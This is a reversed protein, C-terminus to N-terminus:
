QAGLDDLERTVEERDIANVPALELYKRLAEIARPRQGAQTLCSGLNRYADALWPPRPTEASGLTVSRELSPLAEGPQGLDMVLVGLRYHWEGIADNHAVAKRYAEVAGPLDRLRDLADGLAAYASYLEPELEIAKELDARADRPQGFRLRLLGRRWHAEGLNRDLGIAADLEDQARVINGTLDSVWGFYLHYVAVSSDLDVARQLLSSSQVYDQRAFRVRGLAYHAEASNPRAQLVDDLLAEAAAFDGTIVSIAGVRLKLDVDDPAARLAQKYMTLAQAADGASEYLLGRELWLGPFSPDTLAVVELNQRAEDVRGLRRLVSGLHFRASVFDQQLTLARRLEREAAALDQRELYGVGLLTHAAATDPANEGATELLQTAEEERGRRAMMQALAISAETYSPQAALAARYQAEAEQFANVEEETRALWFHVRPDATQQAALPRLLAKADVLRDLQIMAMAAGIVADVDDPNMRRATEFSALAAAWDGQRHTVTGLGVQAASLRGDLDLAQTFHTRAEAFRDAALAIEGILSHAEARETPSAVMKRRELIDRAQTLAAAPLRDATLTMRAQVLLVGVHGPVAALAAAIRARLGAVDGRALAVKVFGFHARGSAPEASLLQTHTAEAADLEGRLVQTWGLLALADVDRPDAQVLARLRESAKPLQNRAVERAAAALKVVASQESEVDVTMLLQGGRRESKPHPGYRVVRLFHVYAAYARLDLDDPARHRGNAVEALARQHDAFTDAKLYARTARVYSAGLEAQDARPLHEAIYTVGFLGAPTFGLGVGTIAVLAVLGLGILQGTRARQRRRARERPAAPVQSGRDVREPRPMVLDLSGGAGSAPGAGIMGRPALLDINGDDSGIMGRPALLDVDRGSGALDLEGYDGSERRPVPLESDGKAIPLDVGGDARRVPALSDADRKPLPLDELPDAGRRRAQAEASPMTVGPLPMPLDVDRRPVPLDALGAAGLLTGARGASAPAVAGRPIPLDASSAPLPLDLEDFPVPPAPRAMPRGPERSPPPRPISPDQTAPTAPDRTGPLDLDGFAQTTKPAGSPSKKGPLDLDFVSARSPKVAPLEAGISEVVASASPFKAPIDQRAAAPPGSSVTPLDLEGFGSPAAKGQWPAAKQVSPAPLDVDGFGHAPAPAAAGAWPASKQGPSPAPLDLEGFGGEAPAAGIVAPPPPSGPGPPAAGAGADARRVLFTHACKPCKMKLGAPPLRREDLQYTAQCQECAVQM